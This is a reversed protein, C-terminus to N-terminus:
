PSGPTAPTASAPGSKLWGIFASWSGVTFAVPPGPYRSNRVYVQGGHIGVEVCNGGGSFSSRKYNVGAPVPVHPV